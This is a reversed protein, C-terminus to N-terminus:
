DASKNYVTKKRRLSETEGELRSQIIASREVLRMRMAELCDHLVAKAVERPLVPTELYETPIFIALYDAGDVRAIEAKKPETQLQFRTELGHKKLTERAVQM